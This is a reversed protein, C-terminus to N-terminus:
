DNSLEEPFPEKGGRSGYKTILRTVFGYESTPPEADTSASPDWDRPTTTM